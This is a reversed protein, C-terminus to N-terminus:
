HIQRKEKLCKNVTEYVLFVVSTAPMVKVISIFCGRYFSVIGEQAYTSCVFFLSINMEIDYNYVDVFL